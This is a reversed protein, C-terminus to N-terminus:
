GVILTSVVGFSSSTERNDWMRLKFNSPGPFCFFDCQDVHEHPGRTVGPETMSLYAMVPRFSDPLEDHRFLEALWGRSDSFKKYVRILVDEIEGQRFERPLQVKRTEM